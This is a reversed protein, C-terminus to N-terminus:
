VSFILEFSKGTESDYITKGAYREMLENRSKALHKRSKKFKAAQNQSIKGKQKKAYVLKGLQQEIKRLENLTSQTDIQVYHRRSCKPCDYYTLYIKEGEVLYEERKVLDNTSNIEFKCKCNECEILLSTMGENPEM